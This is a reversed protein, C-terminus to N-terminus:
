TQSALKQQCRKCAKGLGASQLSQVIDHLVGDKNETMNSNKDQATQGQTLLDNVESSIGPEPLHRPRKLPSEAEKDGHKDLVPALLLRTGLSKRRQRGKDNPSLGQNRSTM